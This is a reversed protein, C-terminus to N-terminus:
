LFCAGSNCEHKIYTSPKDRLFDRAPMDKLPVCTASVFCEDKIGIQSMDRISEDILVAQKWDEPRHLYMDEFYRLGNSYCANCVSAPPEDVLNKIFWGIVKAKTLGMEILPFQLTIFKVDQKIKDARSQEDAAFGIWSIVQPLRKTVLSVGFQDCLYQRLERRMAAVKYFKTCKQKLRGIKGTERNRTWYPPQDLRTLGREKFTMLDYALTTRATKFAIGAAECRWRMKEIVPYSAENEMGPDANLVLFNKPKQIQGLLVMELLAQSQKGGSYQLTTLIPEKM